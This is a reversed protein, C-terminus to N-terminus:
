CQEIENVSGKGLIKKTIKPSGVYYVKGNGFITVFLEKVPNVYAVGEGDIEIATMQTHFNEGHFTGYDEMSLHFRKVTGSLTATPAGDMELVMKDCTLSGNVESNAFMQLHLHYLNVDDFTLVGTQDVIIKRLDTITLKAKLNSGLRRKLQGPKISIKLTGDSLDIDTNRLTTADAEISFYNKKGQVIELSGPTYFKVTNLFKIDFEQSTIAKFTPFHLEDCFSANAFLLCFVILPQILAKM